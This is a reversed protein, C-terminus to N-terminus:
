YKVFNKPTFFQASKKPWLTCIVCVGKFVDAYGGHGLLSGGRQAPVDNFSKTWRHLEAFSVHLEDSDVATAKSEADCCSSSPTDPSTASQVLNLV